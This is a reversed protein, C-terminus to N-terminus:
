AAKMWSGSSLTLAADASPAADSAPMSRPESGRDMFPTLDQGLAPHPLAAQETRHLHTTAPWVSVVTSSTPDLRGRPRPGIWDRLYRFAMAGSMAEWIMWYIGAADQQLLTIFVLADKTTLRDRM